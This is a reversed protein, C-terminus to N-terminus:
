GEIGKESMEVVWGEGEESRMDLVEVEWGGGVWM